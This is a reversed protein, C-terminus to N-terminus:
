FKRVKFFTLTKKYTLKKKNSTKKCTILVHDYWHWNYVIYLKQYTKKKETATFERIVERVAVSLLYQPVYVVQVRMALWHHWFVIYYNIIGISRNDQKRKIGLWSLFSYFLTLFALFHSILIILHLRIVPM